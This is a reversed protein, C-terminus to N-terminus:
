SARPLTIRLKLQGADCPGLAITANHVEAIRRVSALALGSGAPLHPSFPDFMMELERQPCEVDDASVELTVEGGAALTRVYVKPDPKSLQRFLLLLNRLLHKGQDADMRVLTQETTLETHVWMREGRAADRVSDSVLEDLDLVQFSPPSAQLFHVADSLIWNSQQVAQQLKEVQQRLKQDQHPLIIELYYAISEITSLPQRIEHALHRVVGTAEYSDQQEGRTEAFAPATGTSQSM